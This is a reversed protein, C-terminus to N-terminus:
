FFYNWFLLTMHTVNKTVYTVIQKELAFDRMKHRLFFHSGLVSSYYRSNESVKSTFSSIFVPKLEHNSIVSNVELKM